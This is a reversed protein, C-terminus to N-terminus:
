IAMKDSLLSLSIGQLGRPRERGLPRRNSQGSGALWLLLGVQPHAHNPHDAQPGRDAGARRHGGGLLVRLSCVECGPTLFRSWLFSQCFVVQRYLPPLVVHHYSDIKELAAQFKALTGILEKKEAVEVSAEKARTTSWIDVHHQDSCVEQDNDDVM